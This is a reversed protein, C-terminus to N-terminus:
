PKVNSLYSTGEHVIIGKEGVEVTNKVLRYILQSRDSIRMTVYIHPIAVESLGELGELISPIITSGHPHEPLQITDAM